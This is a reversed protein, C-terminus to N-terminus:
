LSQKYKLLLVGKLVTITKNETLEKVLNTLARKGAVICILVQHYHTNHVPLLLQLYFSFTSALSDPIIDQCHCVLCQQSQAM